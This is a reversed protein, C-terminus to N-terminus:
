GGFGFSLGITKDLLARTIFDHRHEQLELWHDSIYVPTLPSNLSSDSTSMFLMETLSQGKVIGDLAM